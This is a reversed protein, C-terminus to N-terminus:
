DYGDQGEGSCKQRFVTTGARRGDNGTAQRWVATRQEPLVAIRVFQVVPDIVNGAALTDLIREDGNDVCSGVLFFRPHSGVLCTKGYDIGGRGVHTAIRFVFAVLLALNHVFCQGTAACESIKLLKQIFVFGQAHLRVEADDISFATGGIIFGVAEVPGLLIDVVRRDCGKTILNIRVKRRGALDIAATSIDAVCRGVVGEARLHEVASPDRWPPNEVVKRAVIRMRDHPHIEAFVGGSRGVAPDVVHVKDRALAGSRGRHNFSHFFTFVREQGRHPHNQTIRRHGHRNRRHDSGTLVLRGHHATDACLVFGARDAVGGHGTAGLYEGDLAAAALIIYM